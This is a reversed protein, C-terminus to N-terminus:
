VCLLHLKEDVPLAESPLLQIMRLPATRMQDCVPLNGIHRTFDSRNGPLISFFNGTLRPMGESIGVAEHDALLFSFRFIRAIRLEPPRLFHLEHLLTNGPKMKIFDAGHVCVAIRHLIRRIADPDKDSASPKESEVVSVTRIIVAVLGTLSVEEGSLKKRNHLLKFSFHLFFNLDRCFSCSHNRDALHNKM